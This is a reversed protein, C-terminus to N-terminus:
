SRARGAGARFSDSAHMGVVVAVVMVM